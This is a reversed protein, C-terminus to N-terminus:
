RIQADFLICDAADDECSAAWPSPTHIATCARLPLSTEFFTFADDRRLAAREMLGLVAEAGAELVANACIGFLQDCCGM